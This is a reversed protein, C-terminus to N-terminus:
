KRLHKNFAQNKAARIMRQNEANNYTANKYDREIRQCEQHYEFYAEPDYIGGGAVYNRIFTEKDVAM